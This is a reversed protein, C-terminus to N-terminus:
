LGAACEASDTIHCLARRFRTTKRLQPFSFSEVEGRDRPGGRKGSVSTPRYIRKPWQPTVSLLPHCDRAPPSHSSRPPFSLGWFGGFLLWWAKSKARPAVMSKALAGEPDPTGCAARSVRCEERVLPGHDRLLPARNPRCCRARHGVWKNKGAKPRPCASSEM